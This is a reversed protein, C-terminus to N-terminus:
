KPVRIAVFTAGLLYGAHCSEGTSSAMSIPKFQHPQVHYSIQEKPDLICLVKSSKELGCVVLCISSSLLGSRLDFKRLRNSSVRMEMQSIECAKKAQALSKITICVQCSELTCPAARTIIVHTTKDKRELVKFKSACM